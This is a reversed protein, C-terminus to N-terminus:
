ETVSPQPSGTEPRRDDVGPSKVVVPTSGLGDIEVQASPILTDSALEWSPSYILIRFSDVQAYPFGFRGNMNRFHRISFRASKRVNLPTGDAAIEMPPSSVFRPQGLPSRSAVIAIAGSAPVDDLNSLRFELRFGSGSEFLTARPSEIKLKVAGSSKAGVVTDASKGSGPSSGQSGPQAEASSLAQVRNETPKRGDLDQSRAELRGVAQELQTVQGQLTRREQTTEVLAYILAMALILILLVVAVAWSIDRRRLAISRTKGQRRSFITVVYDERVFM